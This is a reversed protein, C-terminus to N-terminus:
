VNYKVKKQKEETIECGCFLWQVGLGALEVPTRGIEDHEISGKSCPIM